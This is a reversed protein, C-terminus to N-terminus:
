TFIYLIIFSEISVRVPKIYLKVLKQALRTHRLIRGQFCRNTGLAKNTDNLRVMRYKIEMDITDLVRLHKEQWKNLLFAAEYRDILLGDLKDEDLDEHM